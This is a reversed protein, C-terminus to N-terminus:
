AKANAKGKLSVVPAPVPVGAVPWLKRIVRYEIIGLLSSTFIYLALGSAYTYLFVLMMVPMMMGMIKQMQAQQADAPPPQLRMQIIQAAAMLIPLLNISSVFWPFPMHDPKSLDHVWFAFPAQRQEISTRLM